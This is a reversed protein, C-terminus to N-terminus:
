KDEVNILYIRDKFGGRQELKRKRIEEVQEISFGYYDALSHFIELLDALEELTETNTTSSVYEDLEEYCKEQLAKIYEDDNLVKCSCKKGTSEIIEPIKDRVLKNYIPM